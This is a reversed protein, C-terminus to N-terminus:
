HQTTSAMSSTLAASMRRAVLCFTYLKIEVM